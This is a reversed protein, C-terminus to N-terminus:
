TSKMVTELAKLVTDVVFVLEDESVTYSPAVLM